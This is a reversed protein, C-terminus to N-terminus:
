SLKRWLLFLFYPGGILSLLAGVPLELPSLATRAALDALVVLAAGGLATAPLLAGHGPGVLEGDLYGAAISAVSRGHLNFQSLGTFDRVEILRGQSRLVDFAPHSFGDFPNPYTSV